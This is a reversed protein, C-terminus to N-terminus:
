FSEDELGSRLADPPLGQAAGLLRSRQYAQPPASRPARRACIPPTGRVELVADSLTTRLRGRELVNVAAATTGGPSTVDARLHALHRPDAMAQSAAGAFTTQVLAVATERPFGMQVGADVMAEMALFVYAPGSGSIATAM